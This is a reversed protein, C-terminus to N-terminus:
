VRNNISRGSYLVDYITLGDTSNEGGIYQSGLEHGERLYVIEYSDNHDLSIELQAANLANPLIIDVGGNYMQLNKGDESPFGAPKAEQLAELEVVERDHFRYAMMDM